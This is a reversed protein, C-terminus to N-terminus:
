RLGAKQDPRSPTERSVAPFNTWRQGWPRSTWPFLVYYRSSITRFKPPMATMHLLAYDSHCFQESDPLRAGASRQMRDVVNGGAALLKQGSVRNPPCTRPRPGRKESRAHRSCAARPKNEAGGSGCLVYLADHQGWTNKEMTLLPESPRRPRLCPGTKSKVCAKHTNAFAWREDRGQGWPSFRRRM